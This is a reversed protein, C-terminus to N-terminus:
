PQAHTYMTCTCRMGSGAAIVPSCTFVTPNGGVELSYRIAIVALGGFHTLTVRVWV